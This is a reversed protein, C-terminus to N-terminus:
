EPHVATVWNAVVTEPVEYPIGELVNVDAALSTWTETTYLLVLM